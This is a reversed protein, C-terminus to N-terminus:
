NNIASLTRIYLQINENWDKTVLSDKVVLSDIRNFTTEFGLLQYEPYFGTDMSEYRLTTKHNLVITDTVADMQIIFRTFDSGTLPILLSNTQVQNIWASDSEFGFVSVVPLGVANPDSYTISVELLSRPPAEFIERCAVATLLVYLFLLIQKM